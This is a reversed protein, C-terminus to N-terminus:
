FAPRNCVLVLQTQDTNVSPGSRCLKCEEGCCIGVYGCAPDFFVRGDNHWEYRLLHIGPVVPRLMM